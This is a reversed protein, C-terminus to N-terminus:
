PKLSGYCHRNPMVVLMVHGRQGTEEDVLTSPVKGDLEEEVRHGFCFHFMYELDADRPNLADLALAIALTETSHTCSDGDKRYSMLKQEFAATTTGTPPTLNTINSSIWTNRAGGSSPLYGKVFLYTDVLIRRAIPQLTTLQANLNRQEAKLEGIENRLDQIMAMVKQLPNGPVNALTINPTAGPFRFGIARGDYARFQGPGGANYNPRAPPTKAHHHHWSTLSNYPNFRLFLLTFEILFPTSIVNAVKLSMKFRQHRLYGLEVVVGANPGEFYGSKSPDPLSYSPFRGSRRPRLASRCSSPRLPQINQKPYHFRKVPHVVGQSTHPDFHTSSLRLTLYSCPTLSTHQPPLLSTDIVSVPLWSSISPLRSDSQPQTVPTSQPRVTCTTCLYSRGESSRSAQHIMLNRMFPVTWVLIELKFEKEKEGKKPKTKKTGRMKMTMTKMTRLSQTATVRPALQKLIALHEHIFKYQPYGWPYGYANMYVKLVTQIIILLLQEAELWIAQYVDVQGEEYDTTGDSYATDFNRLVPLLMILYSAVDCANSVPSNRLNVSTLHFGIPYEGDPQTAFIPIQRADVCIDLKQLHPCFQIVHQMGIFTCNPQNNLVYHESFVLSRLQPLSKALELLDNDCLDVSSPDVSLDRLQEFSHLHKLARANINFSGYDKWLDNCVHLSELSSAMNCVHLALSLKGVDWSTDHSTRNLELSRCTRSQIQMLMMQCANDSDSRIALSTITQFSNGVMSATCGEMERETVSFKLDELAPFTAILSIAHSTLFMRGTDLTKAGRLILLLELSEAVSWSLTSDFRRLMFSSLDTPAAKKLVATLNAWSFSDRPDIKITRIHPGIVLRPFIALDKFDDSHLIVASLNCLLPGRSPKRSWIM